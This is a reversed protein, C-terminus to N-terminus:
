SRLRSSVAIGIASYLVWIILICAVLVLWGTLSVYTVSALIIGLAILAPAAPILNSFAVGFLYHLKDHPSCRLHGPAAARHSVRRLGLPVLQRHEADLLADRWGGPPPFLQRPRDPAPLLPLLVTPPAARDRGSSQALGLALRDLGLRSARTGTAADGEPRRRDGHIMAGPGDEPGVCDRVCVARGSRRAVRGGRHDDRKDDLDRTRGRRRRACGRREDAPAPRRVAMRGACAPAPLFGAALDRVRQDPPGFVALNDEHGQVTDVRCIRNHVLGGVGRPAIRVPRAVRAPQASPPDRPGRRPGLEATPLGRADRGRNRRLLSGALAPERSVIREAQPRHPHVRGRQPRAPWHPVDLVGASRHGHDTLPGSRPHRRVRPTGGADTHRHRNGAM